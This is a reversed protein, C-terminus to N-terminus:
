FPPALTWGARPTHGARPLGLPVEPGKATGESWCSTGKIDWRTDQGFYVIPTICAGTAHLPRRGTGDSEEAPLARRDQSLMAVLVSKCAGTPAAVEGKVCPFLRRLPLARCLRLNQVRSSMGPIRRSRQDSLFSGTHYITALKRHSRPCPVKGRQAEHEEYAFSLAYCGYYCSIRM